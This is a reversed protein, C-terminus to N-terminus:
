GVASLTMGSTGHRLRKILDWGEEMGESTLGFKKHSHPGSDEVNVLGKKALKDVVTTTNAPKRGYGDLFINLGKSDLLETGEQHKCFAALVVSEPGSLPVEDDRLYGWVESLVKAMEHDQDESAQGEVEAIERKTAMIKEIVGHFKELESLSLHWLDNALQEFKSGRNM